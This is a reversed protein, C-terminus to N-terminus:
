ERPKYDYRWIMALRLALFCLAVLLVSLQTLRSGAETVQLVIVIYSYTAVGAGMTAIGARELQWFERTGALIGILGGVLFFVGVLMMVTMGYIGLLSRPPTILTVAGGLTFSLYAAGVILNPIRPEPIRQVWGWLQREAPDDKKMTLREVAM